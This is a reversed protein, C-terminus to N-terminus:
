LGCCLSSATRWLSDNDLGGGWWGAGPRPPPNARHLAASLLHQHKGSAEPSPDEPHALDSASSEGQGMVAEEEPGASSSGARRWAEKLRVLAGVWGQPLEQHGIVMMILLAYCLSYCFVGQM